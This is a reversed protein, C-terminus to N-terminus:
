DHPLYVFLIPFVFSDGENKRELVYYSPTFVYYCIKKKSM